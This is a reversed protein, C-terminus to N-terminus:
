VALNTQLSKKDYSKVENTDLLRFRSLTTSIVAEDFDFCGVETDSFEKRINDIKGIFFDHLTETFESPSTSNPLPMAPHKHLFSNVKKLCNVKIM